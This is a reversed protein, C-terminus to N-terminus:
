AYKHNYIRSKLDKLTNFYERPNVALQNDWYKKITDQLEDSETFVFGVKRSDSADLGALTFNYCLLTCSLSLDNTIFAQSHQENLHQKM